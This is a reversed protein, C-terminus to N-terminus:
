QAGDQETHADVYTRELDSLPYGWSALASLHAATARDRSRWFDKPMGSEMRAAALAILYTTAGAPKNRADAADLVDVIPRDPRDGLIERLYEGERFHRDVRADLIRAIYVTADAPPKPRALFQILWDRRVVAAAAAAKNNEVLLRRAAKEDDTQPGAQATTSSHRDHHGNRRWGDCGFRASMYEARYGSAWAVHGPCSTHEAPTIAKGYQQGTDTLRELPLIKTDDYPPEDVVRVGAAELEARIEAARNARAIDDAAQQVHHAFDRSGLHGTLRELHEPHDVFDLLREADALTAQHEHVRATAAKPLSRLRLRSRVTTESRGAAAAIAAVDLGDIELMQQYADAEEVPTLDARHVNERVMMARQDAPTLDTRIICPVRTLGAATAAALRRHGIVVQFRDDVGTLDGLPVVTLPSDIGRARIDETLDTIDGVDRRPNDPHPQLQHIPVGTVTEVATLTDVLSYGRSNTVAEALAAARKADRRARASAVQDPDTIDVVATDTPTM